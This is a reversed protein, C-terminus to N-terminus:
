LIEMELDCDTCIPSGAEVLEEYSVEILRSCSPCKWQRTCRCTVDRKAQQIIPWHENSVVKRRANWHSVICREGDPDKATKEVGDVDYDLLTVAVGVPKFILDAVGGSVMIIIQSGPNNKKKTRKAM